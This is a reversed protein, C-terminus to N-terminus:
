VLIKIRLINNINIHNFDEDRIFKFFLPCESASKYPCFNEETLKKKIFIQKRIYKIKLITALSFNELPM